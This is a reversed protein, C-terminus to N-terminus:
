SYEDEKVQASQIRKIKNQVSKILSENQIIKKAIGAGIMSNILWEVIKYESKRKQRERLWRVYKNWIQIAETDGPLLFSDLLIENSDETISFHNMWETIYTEFLESEEKSFHFSNEWLNFKIWMWTSDEPTETPRTM